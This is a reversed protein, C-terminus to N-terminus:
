PNPPQYEFIQLYPAHGDIKIEDGLELDHRFHSGDVFVCGHQSNWRINMMETPQVRGHGLRKHESENHEETLHERVMYQLDECKLEM